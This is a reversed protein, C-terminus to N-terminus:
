PENVFGGGYWSRADVIAAATVKMDHWKGDAALTPLNWRRQDSAGTGAWSYYLQGTGKGTCEARYRLVFADIGLTDVSLNGITLYSDRAIGTLVLRGNEMKGDCRTFSPDGFRNEANWVVDASASAVAAAAALLVLRM